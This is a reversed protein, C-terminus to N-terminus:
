IDVHQAPSAEVICYTAFFLISHESFSITFQGSQLMMIFLQLRIGVEDRIWQELEQHGASPHQQHTWQPQNHQSLLQLKTKMKRNLHTRMTLTSRVRRALQRPRQSTSEGAGGIINM